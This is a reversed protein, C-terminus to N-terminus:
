KLVMEMAMEECKKFLKRDDVKRPPYTELFYDLADEIMVKRKMICGDVRMEVVVFHDRYELIPDFYSKIIEVKPKHMEIREGFIIDLIYSRIM